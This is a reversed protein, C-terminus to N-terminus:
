SAKKRQISQIQHKGTVEVWGEGLQGERGTMAPQHTEGPVPAVETPPSQPAADEPYGLQKRAFEPSIIGAGIENIYRASLRYADEPTIPRWEIKVPTPLYPTFLKREVERKIARQYSRIEEELLREQYM